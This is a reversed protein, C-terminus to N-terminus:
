EKVDIDGPIKGHKEEYCELLIQIVESVSVERGYKQKLYNKLRMSREYIPVSVRVNTSTIKVM